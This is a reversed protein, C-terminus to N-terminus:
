CAAWAWSSLTSDVTRYPHAYLFFNIVSLASLHATTHYRFVGRTNIHAILSADDVAAFDEITVLDPETMMPAGGNPYLCVNSGINSGLARFYWVLYQSGQIMDLVGTKRREGRRIEQLTLYMQWRQCYSSQDWAYEGQERQGLLM